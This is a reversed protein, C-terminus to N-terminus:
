VEVGDLVDKMKAASYKLKEIETDSLGYDIVKEIGTRNVIAPIGLYL